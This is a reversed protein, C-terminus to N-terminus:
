GAWNYCSNVRVCDDCSLLAYFFTAIFFIVVTSAFLVILAISSAKDKPYKIKLYVFITLSLIVGYFIFYVNRTLWSIVYLLTAVLTLINAEKKNKEEDVVKNNNTNNTEITQIGDNITSTSYNAYEKLSAGCNPCNNAGEPAEKGCNPCFM